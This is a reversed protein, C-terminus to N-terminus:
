WIWWRGGGAIWDGSGVDQVEIAVAWNRKKAHDRMASLQLPLTKQDHTSVRIYLGVRLSKGGTWFGWQSRPTFYAINEPTQTHSLPM